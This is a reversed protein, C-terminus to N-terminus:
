FTHIYLQIHLSGRGSRGRSHEERIYLAGSDASRWVALAVCVYMCACIVCFFLSCTSYQSGRVTDMSNVLDKPISRLTSTKKPKGAVKQFVEIADCIEGVGCVHVIIICLLLLM